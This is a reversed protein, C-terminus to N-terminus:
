PQPSSLKAQNAGPAKPPRASAADADIKIVKTNAKATHSSALAAISRCRARSARSAWTDRDARNRVKSGISRVVRSTVTHRTAPSITSLSIPTLIAGNSAPAPTM